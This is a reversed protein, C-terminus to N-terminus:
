IQLSQISLVKKWCGIDGEFHYIAPTCDRLSKSQKCKLIREIRSCELGMELGAEYCLFQASPTLYYGNVAAWNEWGYAERALLILADSREGM